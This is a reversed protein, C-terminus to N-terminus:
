PGTQALASPFAPAPAESLVFLERELAIEVYGPCAELRTAEVVGFECDFVTWAQATEGRCTTVLDFDAFESSIRAVAVGIRLIM